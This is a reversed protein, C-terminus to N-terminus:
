LLGIVDRSSELVLSGILGLSSMLLLKRSKHCATPGAEKELGHDCESQSFVIWVLSSESFESRSIDSVWTEDRFSMESGAEVKRDAGGSM